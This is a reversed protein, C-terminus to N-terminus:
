VSRSRRDRGDGFGPHASSVIGAQRKASHATKQYKRSPDDIKTRTPELQNVNASREGLNAAEFSLNPFKRASKAFGDVIEPFGSPRLEPTYVNYEALTKM